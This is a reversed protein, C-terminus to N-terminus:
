IWRWIDFSEDVLEQVYMQKIGMYNLMAGFGNLFYVLQFAQKVGIYNLMIDFGTARKQKSESQKVGMYNLMVGFCGGQLM